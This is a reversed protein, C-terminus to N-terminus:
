KDKTELLTSENIEVKYRSRLAALYLQVEEQNALNALQETMAQRRNDDLKEGADVKVLKYLAYGAGPLEVGAYAPLKSGDLKFVPGIAAQPLQRPDLRTASKVAGWNLKDEGKNLAALRAEGDKKALQLAEQRKLLM